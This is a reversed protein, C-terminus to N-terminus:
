RNIINRLSRRRIRISSYEVPNTPMRMTSLSRLRIASQIQSVCCHVCYRPVTKKGWTWPYAGKVVGYNYPAGTRPPTGAVPDGRRMRGGSGCPDLEIVYRDGEDKVEVDGLQSPGSRHARISEAAIEVFERASLMKSAQALQDLQVAHATKIANLLEEEGFKDAIYDYMAWSWDAYLDHLGKWELSLYKVLEKAESLRGSDIAELAKTVTSVGLDAM